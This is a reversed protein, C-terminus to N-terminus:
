LSTVGSSIPTIIVEVYLYLALVILASGAAFQLFRKNTERWRQIRALSRGGGVLVIIALLPLVSILTYTILALLQNSPSLQLMLLATILIPGATFLAETIVSSLGLGFAEGSMSTARARKSLYDALDRPLWLVTGTTRQRYYFMWVAVGIGVTLGCLTAWVLPPIGNVFLNQAVLATTSLLLAVMVFVGLTFSATLSQVHAHSSKKGFAHGSMVTLVSVSLQFSAHIAAALIIIAFLEFTTM